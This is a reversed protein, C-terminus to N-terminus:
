QAPARRLRAVHAVMAPQDPRSQWYEEALALLKDAEARRGSTQLVQALTIRTEARDPTERIQLAEFLSLSERLLDEAAAQNGQQWLSMGLVSLLIARAL